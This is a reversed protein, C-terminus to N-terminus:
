FSFLKEVASEVWLRSIVKLSRPLSIREPGCILRHVKLEIVFM